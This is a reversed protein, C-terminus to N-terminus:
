ENMIQEGKTIFKEKGQYEAQADEEAQERAIKRELIAEREIERKKSQKLLDQIYRSKREEPAAKEQKEEEENKPKFSEYAGDYDYLSDNAANAMAQQARKRLAEQEAAIDRNVASRAASTSPNTGEAKEEDSESDDDGFVNSNKPKNLGYSLKNKGDKKKKSSAAASLNINM